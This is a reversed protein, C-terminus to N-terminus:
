TIDKHKLITKLESQVWWYEARYLRTVGTHLSVQHQVAVTVSRPVDSSLRSLKSSSSMPRPCAAPVALGCGCYAVPSAFGAVHHLPLQVWWTYRRVGRTCIIQIATSLRTVLQSGVVSSKNRDSALGRPSQHHLFHCPVPNEELLTVILCCVPSSSVILFSISCFWSVHYPWTWIIASPLNGLVANCHIGFCFLARPLGFFFQISPILFAM